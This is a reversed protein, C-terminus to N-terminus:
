PNSITLDQGPPEGVRPIGQFPPSKVTLCIHTQPLNSLVAISVSSQLVPPFTLSCFELM